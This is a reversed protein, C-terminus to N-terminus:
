ALQKAATTIDSLMLQLLAQVTNKDAIDLRKESETLVHAFVTAIFLQVFNGKLLKVVQIINMYLLTRSNGQQLPQQVAKVGSNYIRIILWRKHQLSHHCALIKVKALHRCYRHM